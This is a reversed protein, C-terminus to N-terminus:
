AELVRQDLVRGVVPQELAAALRQVAAGRFDQGSVWLAGGGLRFGDRMM